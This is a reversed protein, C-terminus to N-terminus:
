SLVARRGNRQVVPLVAGNRPIHIGIIIARNRNRRFIASGNGYCSIDYGRTDIINDATFFHGHSGCLRAIPINLPHSIGCFAARNGNRQTITRCQSAPRICASQNLIGQNGTIRQASTCKIQKKICATYPSHRAM